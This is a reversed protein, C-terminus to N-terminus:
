FLPVTTVLLGDLVFSFSNVPYKVNSVQCFEFLFTITHLIGREETEDREEQVDTSVSDEDGM